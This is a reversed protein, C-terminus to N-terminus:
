HFFFHSLSYFICVTRALGIYIQTRPQTNTNTHTCNDGEMGKEKGKGKGKGEGKREKGKKGAQSGQKRALKAQSQKAKSGEMRAIRYVCCEDTFLYFFLKGRASCFSFCLFSFSFFFSGLRGLGGGIMRGFFYYSWPPAAWFRCRGGLFSLVSEESGLARWMGFLSLFFCFFGFLFFFLSSLVKSCGDTCGEM